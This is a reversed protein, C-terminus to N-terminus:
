AGFEPHLVCVKIFGKKKTQYRDMIFAFLLKANERRPSLNKLFHLCIRYQKLGDVYDQPINGCRANNDIVFDTVNRFFTEFAADPRPIFDQVRTGM